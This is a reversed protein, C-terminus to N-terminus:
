AWPGPQGGWGGVGRRGGSGCVVGPGLAGAGLGWGGPGVCRVQIETLKQGTSRLEADLVLGLFSGPKIGRAMRGKGPAGPAGEDEQAQRWAAVLERCTGLLM